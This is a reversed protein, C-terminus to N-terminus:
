SFLVPTAWLISVRYGTSGPRMKKTAPCGINRRGPCGINLNSSFFGPGYYLFLGQTKAGTVKKKRRLM